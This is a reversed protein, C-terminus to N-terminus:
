RSPRAPARARSRSRRARDGHDRERRRLTASRPLSARVHAPVQTATARARRRARCGCREERVRRMRIGDSSKGSKKKVANAPPSERTERRARAEVERGAVRRELEDEHQELRRREAAHEGAEAIARSKSYPSRGGASARPAAGCRRDDDAVRMAASTRQATVADITTTTASAAPIFTSPLPTSSTRGREHEPQEDVDRGSSQAAPMAM